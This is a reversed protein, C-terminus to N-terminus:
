GLLWLTGGGYSLYRALVEKREAGNGNANHVKLYGPGDEREVFILHARLKRVPRLIPQQWVYSVLLPGGADVHREITELDGNPVRVYPVKFHRLMSSIEPDGCGSKPNWGLRKFEERMENFGWHSDQTWWRLANIVGVPVCANKELQDSIYEIDSM